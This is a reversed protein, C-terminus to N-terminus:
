QDKPWPREHDLRAILREGDWLELAQRDLLQRAQKVAERDNPAEISQTYIRQGDPDLFYVSYHSL